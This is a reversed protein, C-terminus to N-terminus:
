TDSPSEAWKRVNLVIKVINTLMRLCIPGIFIVNSFRLLLKRLRSTVGVHKIMVFLYFIMVENDPICRRIIQDPCQKFLYPDDWIFYKVQAFFKYKDQKTWHSPIKGIALYNVIDAFWPKTSLSMLQEDPFSENIPPESSPAVLIRSLHDAVVNETGKKDRIELDFEQLLM